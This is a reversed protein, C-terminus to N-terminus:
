YKKQRLSHADVVTLTREFSLSEISLLKEIIEATELPHTPQHRIFIVGAHPRFGHKFILEGYDSDYTIITRNQEMAINMVHEDLIGPEDVGIAAIDFGRSKLLRVSTLPVNENALFKM